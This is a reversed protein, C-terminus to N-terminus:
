RPMRFINRSWRATQIYEVGYNKHEDIGTAIALVDPRLHHRQPRIRKRHAATARECIEIRREYTAAQGTEDFPMVVVAAGYRQALRAQHLFEAEGNKLSISNVISKGQVCKLGAETSGMKILRDSPYAPSM